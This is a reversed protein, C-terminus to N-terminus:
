RPRAKRDFHALVSGGHPLPLDVEHADRLCLDLFPDLDVPMLAITSCLRRYIRM